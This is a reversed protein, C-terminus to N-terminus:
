LQDSIQLVSKLFYFPNYHLLKVKSFRVIIVNKKPYVYIAQGWLGWAYFSGYEKPGLAWNNQFFRRKAIKGKEPEKQCVTNEVYERSIIQKGNCDGYKMFLRGYKAFDVMRANICCFAKELANEMKKNSSVDVSWLADSEMGLPQWLRTTFYDSLHQHTARELILAIFVLNISSYVFKKEPPRAVYANAALKRLNTGWYFPADPMGISVYLGSEHSILHSIKIKDFGKKYKFEPLYDVLYDNMTEIYGEEIAIEVLTAVMSKAISFSNFISYQSYDKDYKEYLITDNRIIMLGLSASEEFFQDLDISPDSVFNEEVFIESGWDKDGEYRAFYFPNDSRRILRNQFIKYDDDNPVGAHIVMTGIRSCGLLPLILIFIWNFKNM